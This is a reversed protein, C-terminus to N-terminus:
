MPRCRPSSSSAACRLARARAHVGGGGRAGGRHAAAWAHAPQAPAAACVAPLRREGAHRHRHTRRRLCREPRQLGLGQRGGSAARRPTRVQVVHECGSTAATCRRASSIPTSRRRATGARAHAPAPPPRPSRRRDRGGVVMAGSPTANKTSRAACRPPTRRAGDDYVDFRAFIARDTTAAFGHSRTRRASERDSPRQIAGRPARAQPDKRRGDRDRRGGLDEKLFIRQDGICCQQSGRPALPQARQKRKAPLAALRLDARQEGAGADGPSGDSANMPSRHGRCSAARTPQAPPPATDGHPQPTDRRRARGTRAPAISLSCVARRRAAARRRSRGLGGRLDLRLLLRGGGLRADDSRHVDGARDHATAFPMASMACM